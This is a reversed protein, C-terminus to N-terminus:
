IKELVENIFRFLIERQTDIDPNEEYFKKLFEEKLFVRIWANMNAQEFKFCIESYYKGSTGVLKYMKDWYKAECKNANFEISICSDQKDNENSGFLGFGIWFAAVNSCRENEDRFDVYRGFKFMWFNVEDYETTLSLEKSYVTKIVSKLLVDFNALTKTQALNIGTEMYSSRGLNKRMASSRM